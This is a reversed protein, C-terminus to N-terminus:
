PNQMGHTLKVITLAKEQKTTEEVKTSRTPDQQRWSKKEVVAKKM